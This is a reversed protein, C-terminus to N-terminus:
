RKSEAVAAPERTAEAQNPKIVEPKKREITYHAAFNSKIKDLKGQLGIDFHAEAPEEEAAQEREYKRESFDGKEPHKFRIDLQLKRYEDYNEKLA